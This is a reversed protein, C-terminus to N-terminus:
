HRRRRSALATQARNFVRGDVIATPLKRTYDHRNVIGAVTAASWTKGTEITMTAAAARIPQEDCVLEFIRRVHEAAKHDVELGTQTRRYGYPVKGGQARAHPHKAAKADRGAKLRAVIRRREHAAIVHGIGDLLLASDDEGNSGDAYLVRAGASEFTEVADHAVREKRALRSREAILLGGAGHQYVAALAATLGPRDELSVTGSVDEHFEAAIRLGERAAFRRIDARQADPGYAKGQEASSTRVYAIVTAADRHPPLPNM